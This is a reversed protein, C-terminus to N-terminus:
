ELLIRATDDSRLLPFAHGVDPLVRLSAGPFRQALLEATRRAAITTTGGIVLEVRPPGALRTPVPWHTAADVERAVKPGLRLQDAQRRPSMRAWTGAGGWYDVFASMWGALDARPDPFADAARALDASGPADGADALIGFAVPELLSLRAVPRDAAALLALLGGYSHGVLHVEEGLQELLAQVGALDDPLVDRDPDEFPSSGDYGVLVLQHVRRSAALRPAVGRWTAPGVGSGHVLLVDPGNGQTHVAFSLERGDLPSPLTIM